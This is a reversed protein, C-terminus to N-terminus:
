AEVFFLPLMMVFNFIRRFAVVLFRGLGNVLLEEWVEVREGEEGGGGGGFRRLLVEM